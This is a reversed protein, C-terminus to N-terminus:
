TLELERSYENQEVKAGFLARVVKDVPMEFKRISLSPVLPFRTQPTEGEHQPTPAQEAAM